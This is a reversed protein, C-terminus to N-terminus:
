IVLGRGEQAVPQMAMALQDGCDCRLSGLMEGTLV